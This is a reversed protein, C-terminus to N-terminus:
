NTLLRVVDETPLGLQINYTGSKLKTDLGMEVAKAIFERSSNVVGKEELLLGIKGPMSGVPIEVKVVVPSSPQNPQEQPEEPPNDGSSPDDQPDTSDSPEDENDSPNDDARSSNDVVIQGPTHSELADKAFLVDLRWGIVGVVIVIIFVMFIYDISDYLIDRIKDMLKM